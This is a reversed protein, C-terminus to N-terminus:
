VAVEELLEGEVAEDDFPAARRGEVEDLHRLAAGASQSGRSPVRAITPAADANRCHDGLDFEGGRQDRAVVAVEQRELSGHSIREADNRALRHM